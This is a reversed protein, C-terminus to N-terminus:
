SRTSAHRSPKPRPKADSAHAIADAVRRPNNVDNPFQAVHQLDNGATDVDGTVVVVTTIAQRIQPAATPDNALEQNAQARLASVRQRNTALASLIQQRQAPTPNQGLQNALGGLQNTLGAATSAL